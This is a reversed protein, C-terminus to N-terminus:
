SGVLADEPNATFPPILGKRKLDPNAQLQLLPFIPDGSADTPYDKGDELLFLFYGCKGGGSPAFADGILVDITVNEGTDLHFSPGVVTQAYTSRPRTAMWLGPYIKSAKFSTVPEYYGSDLVVQGNIRVVLFDDGYGAARFDGSRSSTIKGHYIACWYGPQCTNGLGFAKPGEASEIIPTLFENAYLPKQSELYKGTWDDENWGSSFFKRLMSVEKDVNMDTPTHDPTQKLDYFYGTLGNGNNNDSGFLTGAGTGPGTAGSNGLSAGAAPALNSISPQPLHASSLTFSSLTKSVVVSSVAPPPRVQLDPELANQAEGGAEQPPAPPPPPPPAVKTAVFSASDPHVAPASFIVWTAVMLFLVLHLLIAGVLYPASTYWGKLKASFGSEKESTPPM